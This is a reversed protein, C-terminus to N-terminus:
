GGLLTICCEKSGRMYSILEEHLAGKQGESPLGEDGHLVARHWGLLATKQQHLAAFFLM